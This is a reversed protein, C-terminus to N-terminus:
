LVLVVSAAASAPTSASLSASAVVWTIISCSIEAVESAAVSTTSDCAGVLGQRGLRVVVITGHRLAGGVDDRHRGRVHRSEQV